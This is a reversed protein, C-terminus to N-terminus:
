NSDFLSHMFGDIEVSCVDGGIVKGKYVLLTLQIADSNEYEPYNTVTYTWKKVTCGCYSSLDFGDNKQLENYQTYVEDFEEPIMIETVSVPEASVTYGTQAIFNMREEDTSASYNVTSGAPSGDQAQVGNEALIACIVAAAAVVAVLLLLKGKFSKLSLIFM